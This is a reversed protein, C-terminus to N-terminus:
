RRYKALESENTPSHFIYKYVLAALIAGTFPGLWYIYHATWTGSVVAPGFSRAPNISCGTLQVGIIHCVFAAFGIALPAFKGVSLKDNSATKSSMFIVFVFFGTLFVEIFFGQGIGMSWTEKDSHVTSRNSALTTAGYSTARGLLGPFFAFVLGSGLLAGCLQAIIYLIAKVLSINKLVLVAVTIAPNIHGHSIGSIAWVIAAIAFGFTLSIALVTAMNLGDNLLLIVSGTGFFILFCTGLFEAFLEEWCALFVKVPNGVIFEHEPAHYDHKAKHEEEKVKDGFMQIVAAGREVKSNDSDQAVQKHEEFSAKADKKKIKEVKDAAKKQHENDGANKVGDSM